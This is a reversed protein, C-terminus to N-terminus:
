MNKGTKLRAFVTNKMKELNHYVKYGLAKYLILGWVFVMSLRFLTAIPHFVPIFILPFLFVNIIVLPKLPAIWENKGWWLLCIFFNAIVLQSFWIDVFFVFHLIVGVIFIRSSEEKNIIKESGQKKYIYPVIVILGPILFYIYKVDFVYYFFSVLSISTADKRFDSHLVSSNIFEQLLNIRTFFLIIDPILPIAVAIFFKFMKKYDKKRLFTVLMLIMIFSTVPKLLFSIGLFFGGLLVKQQLLLRFSLLIMSVVIMVNQGMVIANVMSPLIIMVLIVHDIEKELIQGIKRMENIGIIFIAMCIIIYPIYAVQLELFTFPIIMIAFSPFYRYDMNTYEYNYILDINGDFITRATNYYREFDSVNPSNNIFYVVVPVFILAVILLTCICVFLTNKRFFGWLEKLVM